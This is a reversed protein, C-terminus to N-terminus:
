KSGTIATIAALANTIATRAGALSPDDNVTNALDVAAYASDRAVEATHVKSRLAVLDARAQDVTETSAKVKAIIADAHDSEYQRLAASAANLGTYLSAVTQARSSQSGGCGYSAALAVLCAFIVPRTM